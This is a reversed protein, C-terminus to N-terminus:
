AIGGTMAEYRGVADLAIGAGNIGGGFILIDVPPVSPATSQM